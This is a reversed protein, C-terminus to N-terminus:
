VQKSAKKSRLPDINSTKYMKLEPDNRIFKAVYEESVVYPRGPKYDYIGKDRAAM